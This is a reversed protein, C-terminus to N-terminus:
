FPIDEPAVDSTPYKDAFMDKYEKSSMISERLFQPQENFLETNWSTYTLVKSPNVQPPCEQGKMLPAASAIEAREKGAKSTKHKINIICAKGVLSEVDFLDAEGDVMSKGIMGEVLKRLNAKEGMSLTYEQSIVLPKAEEGEKFVKTEQPLEFTLRIKNFERAEGLYEDMITGIHIFSICRALHTGEPANVFQSQPKPAFTAM